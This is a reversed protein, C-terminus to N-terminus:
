IAEFAIEYRTAVPEGAKFDMATPIGLQRLPSRDNMAHAHGLDFASYVPEVGLGVFRGNWPAYTRGRNSVWLLVSPFIAPDWTMRIRYREVHNTLRIRGGHGIVLLLEETDFALPLAAFSQISGDRMPISALGAVIQAPEVRSVGAEFIGPFTLVKIPDAEFAIEFGGPQQPLRFTPHGGWALTCDTRPTVRTEIGITASGETVDIRRDLRAIPFAIDPACSFALANPGEVERTWPANACAGHQAGDQSRLDPDLGDLWAPDLDTRPKGPSGFPLCLWDGRLGKLLPPATKEWDTPPEDVWPATAFPAITRGDDLTVEVPGLMGGLARVEIRGRDWSLAGLSASQTTTDSTM